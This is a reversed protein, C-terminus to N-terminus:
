AAIRLRTSYKSKSLSNLEHLQQHNKIVRKQLYTEIKKVMAPTTSFKFTGTEGSFTQWHLKGSFMLFKPVSIEFISLDKIQWSHIEKKKFFWSAWPRKILQIKDEHIELEYNPGQLTYFIL